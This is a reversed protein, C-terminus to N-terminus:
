RGRPEEVQMDGSRDRTSGLARGMVDSESRIGQGTWVCTRQGKATIQRNMLSQLGRGGVRSSGKGNGRRQEPVSPRSGGKGKGQTLKASNAWVTDLGGLSDCFPQGHRSDAGDHQTAHCTRRGPKLKFDNGARCDGAGWLQGSTQGSKRTERQVADRTPQGMATEVMVKKESGLSRTEWACVGTLREWAVWLGPKQQHSTVNM